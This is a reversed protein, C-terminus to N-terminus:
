KGTGWPLHIQGWDREGVATRLIPYLNEANSDGDRRYDETDKATYFSNM